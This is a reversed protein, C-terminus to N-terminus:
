LVEALWDAVARVRASRRVDDHMVLYMPMEYPANTIADAPSLKQQPTLTQWYQLFEQIDSYQADFALLDDLYEGTFTPLLGIGVGNTIAQTMLHFDNTAMVSQTPLAATIQEAWKKLHSNATFGICHLVPLENAIHHASNAKAIKATDKPKTAKNASTANNHNIFTSLREYYSTLYHQHGYLRYSVTGLRRLVLDDLSPRCLRIAIDSERAHLNSIHADGLLRLQIDPYQARFQSLHPMILHEALVPPASIVVEGAMANHEVAMRQFNAINQGINAAQTYLLRGEETLHYRKGVRDFLRLKLATELHEIRRSVTSHQVGMQEAAASLTEQEVLSVFYQLDNWDM